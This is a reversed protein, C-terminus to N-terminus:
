QWRMFVCYGFTPNNDVNTKVFLLFINRCYLMNVRRVQCCGLRGVEEVGIRGKPWGGFTASVGGHFAHFLWTLM